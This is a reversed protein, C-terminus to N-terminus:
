RYDQSCKQIGTASTNNRIDNAETSLVARLMNEDQVIAGVRIEIVFEGSLLHISENIKWYKERQRHSSQKQGYESIQEL